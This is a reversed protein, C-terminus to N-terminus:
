WAADLRTLVSSSGLRPQGAADLMVCQLHRVDEDIGPGLDGIPLSIQLVGQADLVGPSLRRFPGQSLFVGQLAPSSEHAPHLASTLFVREGPVGRFTIALSTSERTLNQVELKRAVTGLEVWPGGTGAFTPGNPAWTLQPSCPSTGNPGGLGGQVSNGAGSCSTGLGVMIGAGGSGGPTPQNDPTACVPPLLTGNLGAGGNGGQFTSGSAFVVSNGTFEAGPAGSTGNTFIQLAPTGDKGRGGTVFSDQIALVSNWAGLGPMAGGAFSAWAGTFRCRTFAVDASDSCRVVLQPVFAPFSGSHEVRVDQVRVAGACATIILSPSATPQFRFGALLLTSGAPLNQIELSGYWFLEAVSDAVISIGKGYVLLNGPISQKVLIVDGDVAADVAAQLTPHTPAPGGITLVGAHACPLALSFVALLCLARM